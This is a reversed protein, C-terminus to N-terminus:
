PSIDIVKFTLAYIKIESNTSNTNIKFCKLNDLNISMSSWEKRMIDLEESNNFCEAFLISECVVMGFNMNANLAYCDSFELYSSHNNEPWDILIKIIDNEGPNQRDIHIFKIVADHWPLDNFNPNM